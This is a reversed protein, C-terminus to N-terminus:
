THRKTIDWYGVKIGKCYDYFGALLSINMVIFYNAFRLLKNLWNNQKFGIGTLPICYFILQFVFLIQYLWCTKLIILNIIFIIILFFPTLWRLGKHSWFCFGQPKFPKLVKFYHSLNQFNGASIRRRRKSEVTISGSLEEICVSDLDLICEQKQKLINSTIFFDDVLFNHPIPEFFEKKFSFCAGFPSITCGWILGELYKIQNEYNVYEKEQYGTNNQDSNFTNKILSAVSAVKPYTYNRVNNKIADKTLIVNADSLLIIDYKALKVMQNVVFSKGMRTLHEHFKIFPYQLALYQVIEKSQDTSADSFVIIEIKELPYGNSLISEIKSQIVHEENHIPILISVDPILNSNSYKWTKNKALLKLIVPYFLYTYSILIIFFWFLINLM